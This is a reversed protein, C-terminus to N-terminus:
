KYCSTIHKHLLNNYEILKEEYLDMLKSNKKPNDKKKIKDLINNMRKAFFVLNEMERFQKLVANKNSVPQHAHYVLKLKRNENKLRKKLDENSSHKIFDNNMHFLQKDQKDLLEWKEKSELFEKTLQEANPCFFQYTNAGAIVITQAIAQGAIQEISGLAGKKTANVALEPFPKDNDSEQQVVNFTRGDYVYETKQHKHHHDSSPVEEDFEMGWIAVPTSILTVACIILIKKLQTKKM